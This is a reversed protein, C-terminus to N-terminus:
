ANGARRLIEQDSAGEEDAKDAEEEGKMRGAISGGATMLASLYTRKIGKSSDVEKLAKRTKKKESFTLENFLSLEEESMLVSYLREEEGMESFIKIVEM